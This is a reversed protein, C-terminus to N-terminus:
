FEVGLRLAISNDYTHGVTNKLWGWHNLNWDDYAIYDYYEHMGTMTYGVGINLALRKYVDVRFGVTASLYIGGRHIVNAGLKLDLFPSFRRKGIDFRCDAYIPLAYAQNYKPWMIFGVGGGAFLWPKLQYGHTTTAGTYFTGNGTGYIASILDAQVEGNWDVFGRYGTSPQRANGLLATCAITFLLIIHRM